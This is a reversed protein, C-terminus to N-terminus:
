KVKRKNTRKWAGRWRGTEKDRLMKKNGFGIVNTAVADIGKEARAKLAKGLPSSVSDWGHTRELKALARLAYPAPMESVIEWSQTSESWWVRNQTLDQEVM